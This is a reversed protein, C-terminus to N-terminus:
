KGYLESIAKKFHKHANPRESYPIITGAVKQHGGGRTGFSEAVKRAIEGAHIGLDAAADNVVVRYNLVDGPEWQGAAGIVPTKVGDYKELIMSGFESKIKQVRREDEPDIHAVILRVTHDGVTIEEDHDFQEQEVRKHYKNIIRQWEQRYKALVPHELAASVNGSDIAGMVARMVTEHSVQGPFREPYSFLEAVESVADVNTGHKKVVASVFDAIEKRYKHARDGVAGIAAILEIRRFVTPEIGALRSLNLIQISPNLAYLPSSEERSLKGEHPRDTVFPNAVVVLAPHDAIPNDHHDVNIIEAGEAVDKTHKPEVTLDHVIYLAGPEDFALNNRDVYRIEYNEHGVAKFIDRYAEASAGDADGGDSLVIIKRNSEKARRIQSIVDEHAKLLGKPFASIATAIHEPMSHKGAM